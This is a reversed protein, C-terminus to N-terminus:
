WYSRMGKNIKEGYLYLMLADLSMLPYGYGLKKVIIGQNRYAQAKRDKVKALSIVVEKDGYTITASDKRKIVFTSKFNKHHPKIEYM